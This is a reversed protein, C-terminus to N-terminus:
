WNGIEDGTDPTKDPGLSWLDYSTPNRQGPCMYQYLQGWPDPKVANSSVYPWEGKTIDVGAPASVLAQLGDATSPFDGHDLWYQELPGKMSNVFITAERKKAQSLAAQVGYVGMTSLIILIVLVIMVEILTLAERHFRRYKSRDPQM